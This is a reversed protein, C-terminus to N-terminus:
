EEEEVSPIAIVIQTGRDPSSHIELKAGILEGREHLGLLGYHGRPAFEAPSEPIVFGQGDDSITLTTSKQNFDIVISAQSANAHRVVNSLGEQAMRYFAIEIEPMLRREDGIRQFNVDIGTEKSTERALMDLTAVLGLDELYLPRLDRTIRRLEKINQENLGQIEALSSDTLQGEALKIRTLQVRQGLAILSQITDDHLERALRSREDEQGATIAGIYGRLGQQALLVKQSMHILTRQLRNIEEIGEVPEEIAQFDGWALKAARDELSQLPQIVRQAGFWIAV